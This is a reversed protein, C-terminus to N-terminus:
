VPPAVIQIWSKQEEFTWKYSGYWSSIFFPVTLSFYYLAGQIQPQFVLGVLSAIVELSDSPVHAGKLYLCSADFTYGLSVPSGGTGSGEDLCKLAELGFLTQYSFPSSHFSQSVPPICLTPSSLIPHTHKM